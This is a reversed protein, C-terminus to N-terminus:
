TDEPINSLIIGAMLVAIAGNVGLYESLAYLFILISLIAIYNHKQKRFKYIVSAILLGFVFGLVISTSFKSAVFGAAEALRQPSVIVWKLVVYTVICFVDTLLSEISLILPLPPNLSLKNVVAAVVAGSSGGIISGLLAGEIMSYGLLLHVVLTTAVLSLLFSILALTLAAKASGFLEQINIGLSSEFMIAVFALAGLYIALNQFQTPDALGGLPGIVMGALILIIPDPIGFKDLLISAIYGTILIGSVIFFASVVPDLAM